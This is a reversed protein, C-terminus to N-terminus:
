LLPSQRRGQVDLVLGSPRLAQVPRLEHSCHIREIRNVIGKTIVECKSLPCEESTLWPMTENRPTSKCMLERYGLMLSNSDVWLPLMLNLDAANLDPSKM